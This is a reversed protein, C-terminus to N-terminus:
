RITKELGQKNEDFKKFKRIKELTERIHCLTNQEEDERAKRLTRKYRSVNNILQGMRINILLRDVGLYEDTKMRQVVRSLATEFESTGCSGPIELKPSAEPQLQSAIANFATFGEFVDDVFDRPQNWSINQKRLIIPATAQSANSDADTPGYSIDQVLNEPQRLSIDPIKSGTTTRAETRLRKKPRPSVAGLPKSPDVSVFKPRGDKSPRNWERKWGQNRTELQPQLTM